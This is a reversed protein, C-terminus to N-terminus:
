EEDDCLLSVVGKNDIRAYTWARFFDGLILMEKGAALMLHLEIHRHGFLQVDYKDTQSKALLVLPEKQEGEYPQPNDLEKQRSSASWKYGWGDGLSQPLLRFLWQLPACHYVKRIFAFQKDDVGLGDGHAMLCKRGYLVAEIPKKHVQVGTQEELWGFTWIDHNGILYHVQIGKDTTRRLAQLVVDYGKPKQFYYEMWFDFIDGLLYIAEADASVKDLWDAFRKQHAAGDPVVLSGIHADSLFYIM